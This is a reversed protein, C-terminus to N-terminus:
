YPVKATEKAAERVKAWDAPSFQEESKDPFTEQLLSSWWQEAENPRAELLAQWAEDKTCGAPAPPRPAAPAPKAVPPPKPAGAPKPPNAPAGSLARLKSGLRNQIAKLGGIDSKKVGGGGGEYNEPNLYKVKLRKKNNYTEFATVVQVRPLSAPDVSQLWTVDCGDWGLAAKLNDINVTNLSGDRNELYHWGTLEADEASVDAWEGNVLEYAMQYSVIACSLKNPGDEVVGISNVTALFKGARNLM